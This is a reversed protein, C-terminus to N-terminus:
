IVILEVSDVARTTFTHIPMISKWSEGDMGIKSKVFQSWRTSSLCIIVDQFEQGRVESPNLFTLTKANLITLVERVTTDPRFTPQDSIGPILIEDSSWKFDDHPSDQVFLLPETWSWKDDRKAIRAIAEWLVKSSGKENIKFSGGETVHNLGNLVNEIFPDTIESFRRQKDERVYPNMRKFISHSLDLSGKGALRSQRYATTLYYTHIPFGSFKNWIGILSQGRLEGVGKIDGLMLSLKLFATRETWQFPDVAVVLARAGSSRARDLAKVVQGAELPDDVLHVAGRTLNEEPMELGANKVFKRVGSTTFYGVDLGSEGLESALLLLVQTKGTGAGGLIIHFEFESNAKVRELVKDELDMQEDSLYRLWQAAIVPEPEDFIRRAAEIDL